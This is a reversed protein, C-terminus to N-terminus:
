TWGGKLDENPLEADGHRNVVDTVGVHVGHRSDTERGVTGERSSATPEYSLADKSRAVKWPNGSHLPNRELFCARPCACMGYWVADGHLSAKKEM